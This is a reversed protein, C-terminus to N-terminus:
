LGLIKRGGYEFRAIRTDWINTSKISDPIIREMDFVIIPANAKYGGYIADNVDLLASYGNKKLEKFLRSRQTAVDNSLRKNSKDAYPIIYNFYRYITTLDEESITDNNSRIKDLVKKAERYGRFKYRGKSFSAEMRNPDMVFNYFDRSSEFLTKFADAGSDESAVKMTGNLKNNIQTKFCLSSGIKNGNEDVVDKPIPRNFLAKYHAKDTKDYAAFFMDTNKTRDKDFSLTSLVTDASLEKDFHKKNYITNKNDRKRYRVKHKKYHGGKLPYPPGNRVGWKQNKIGHHYLENQQMM